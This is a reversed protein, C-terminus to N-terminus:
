MRDNQPVEKKKMLKAGCLMYTLSVKFTTASMAPKTKVFM